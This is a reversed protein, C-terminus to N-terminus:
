KRATKVMALLDNEMSKVTAEPGTLKFFLSGQPGELVVGVLRYGPLMAPGLVEAGPCRYQMQEPEVVLLEGEAVGAAVEAQGVDVAVDDV